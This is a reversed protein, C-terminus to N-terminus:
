ANGYDICWISDCINGAMHPGIVFLYVAAPVWVLGTGVVPILAAFGTVVGWFGAENMGAIWYCLFGALGQAVAFPPFALLIALHKSCWNM